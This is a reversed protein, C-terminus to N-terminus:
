KPRVREYSSWKATDIVIVRAGASLGSVVPNLAGSERGYRVLKRLAFGGPRIAFLYAETNARTNAPKELYLADKLAGVEILTGVNRGVIVGGSVCGELAHDAELLRARDIDVVSGTMVEPTQNL